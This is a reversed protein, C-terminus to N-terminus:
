ERAHGDLIEVDYVQGERWEFCIRWQKDIVISYRAASIASGNSAPLWGDARSLYM